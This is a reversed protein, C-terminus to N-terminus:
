FAMKFDNKADKFDVSVKSNYYNRRNKPNESNNRSTSPLHNKNINQATNILNQSIEQEKQLLQQEKQLLQQEKELLHKEKQFM